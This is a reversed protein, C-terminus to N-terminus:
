KSISPSHHQNPGGGCVHGSGFSGKNNALYEYCKGGVWDFEEDYHEGRFGIGFECDDDEESDCKM